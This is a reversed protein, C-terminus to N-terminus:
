HALRVVRVRSINERTGRKTRILTQSVTQLLVCRERGSRRELESASMRKM